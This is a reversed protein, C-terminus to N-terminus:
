FYERHEERILRAKRRIVESNSFAKRTSVALFIRVYVYVTMALYIVVILGTLIFYVANYVFSVFFNVSYFSCVCIVYKLLKRKTVRTRHILPHVVGMYRDIHMASLTTISFVLVLMSVRGVAFSLWCRGNGSRNFCSSLTPCMKCSSSKWFTMLTIGNLLVTAIGIIMNVVCAIVNNWLYTKSPLGNVATFQEEFMFCTKLFKVDNTTNNM